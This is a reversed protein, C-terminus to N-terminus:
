RPLLEEYKDSKDLRIIVLFGLLLSNGILRRDLQFNKVNQKRVM